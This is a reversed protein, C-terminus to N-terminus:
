SRKQAIRAMHYGGLSGCLPKTAEHVWGFAKLTQQSLQRVTQWEASDHAGSDTWCDNGMRGFLEQLSDLTTLQDVALESQFNVLLKNRWHDFSLYLEDAKYGFAPVVRLQIEPPAALLEISHKLRNFVLSKNAFLLEM